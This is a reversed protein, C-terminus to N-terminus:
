CKREGQGELFETMASNAPTPSARPAERMDLEGQLDGTDQHVMKM